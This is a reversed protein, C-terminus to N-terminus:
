FRRNRDVPIFALLQSQPDRQFAGLLQGDVSRGFTQRMHGTRLNVRITDYDTVINVHHDNVKFVVIPTFWDLDMDLQRAAVPKGDRLLQISRYQAGVLKSPQFRSTAIGYRTGPIRCEAMEVEPAACSSLALVLVLGM